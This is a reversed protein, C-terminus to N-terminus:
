NTNSFSRDITIYINLVSKSNRRMNVVMTFNIKINIIFVKIFYCDGLQVVKILFDNRRLAYIIFVFTKNYPIITFNFDLMSKSSLSNTRIFNIEYIKVRVVSKRFCSSLNWENIVRIRNTDM